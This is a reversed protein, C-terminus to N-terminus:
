KIVGVGYTELFEKAWQMKDEVRQGSPQSTSWLELNEPRNDARQGNIHHVNEHSFLERGLKEAMVLRHQLETTRPDSGKIHRAIYGSNNIRWRDEPDIEGRPTADM